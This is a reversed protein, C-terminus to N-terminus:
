SSAHGQESTARRLLGKRESKREVQSGSQHWVAARTKSGLCVPKPAARRALAAAFICTITICAIAICAALVQEFAPSTNGVERKHGPGAKPQLSNNGPPQKATRPSM